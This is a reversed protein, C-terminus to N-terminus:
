RPTSAKLARYQNPTLGEIERFARNFTSLSRFGCDMALNQIPMQISAPAVLLKKVERIRVQNIYASFNDYGLAQNILARLRHQTVGLRDALSVISLERDKFAEKKEVLNKLRVLLDSDRQSLQGAPTREDRFILAHPNAQLLWIAAIVIAPWISMAKFTQSSIHGSAILFPEAVAAVITAFIVIFVFYVRTRRRESLLDDSWDKLTAFVLHATLLLSTASIYVILGESVRSVLGFEALRVWFIPLAYALGVIWHIPKVHFSRQFLSLAFLWVFVLHPVDLIRAPYYIIDSPVIEPPAFGLFLAAVSLCSLLLFVRRATLRGSAIILAAILLLLGTGTFRFFVDYFLM